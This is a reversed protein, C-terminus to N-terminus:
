PTPPTLIPIRLSVLTLVPIRLPQYPDFSCHQRTSIRAKGTPGSKPSSVVAIRFSTAGFKKGFDTSFQGWFLCKPAYLPPPGLFDALKNTRSLRPM